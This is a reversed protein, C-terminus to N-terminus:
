EEQTEPFNTTALSTKFVREFFVKLERECEEDGMLVSENYLWGIDAVVLDSYDKDPLWPEWEIEGAFRIVPIWKSKRINHKKWFDEGTAELPAEGTFYVAALGSGCIECRLRHRYEPFTDLLASFIEQVLSIVWGKYMIM